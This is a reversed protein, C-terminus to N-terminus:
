FIIVDVAEGKEVGERELDIRALGDSHSLSSIVHSGGPIPVAWLEGEKGELRVRVYEERGSVSAINQTIRARVTRQDRIAESYFLMINMIPRVILYFIVICSVPHGPLGIVPKGDIAALITPKGPKLALGNARIEAGEFAQICDLTLDKTGVSSGGSIVIIDATQLGRRIRAVIEEKRDPVIGLQVPEGGYRETLADLTWANISRIKGPAAEEDPSVLETGTSLLAIRPKRRVAVSVVGCSALAGIDQPRIRSGAALLLDGKAIDSGRAAINEGPAVARKVLIFEGDEATYEVMIVADAGEPAMGGTSIAIAEGQGCRTGPEDGMAIEGKMRLRLPASESAGFTDGAIVAYGDM